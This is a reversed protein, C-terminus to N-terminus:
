YFHKELTTRVYKIGRLSAQARVLSREKPDLRVTQVIVYAFTEAFAQPVGNASAYSQISELATRTLQESDKMNTLSRRDEDPSGRVAGPLTVFGNGDEFARWTLLGFSYVDTLMMERKRLLSGRTVEPAEFPWTGTELRRAEFSTMDMVAGGFDALKATYRPIYAGETQPNETGGFPFVLVNEHKLDGHIIGSAHLASLGRGVDYCLKQKEAPALQPNSAQLSQLTGFPAYEVLLVPLTSESIHSLGWQIGLLRVVNPHYRIPEHLLARIEFLIEKWDVQPKNITDSSSRFFTLHHVLM